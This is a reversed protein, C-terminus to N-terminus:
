AAREEHVEFGTRRAFEVLRQQISKVIKRKDNETLSIPPRAPMRATGKQHALAYPVASGIVLEDREPRLVSGLADPGTLSEYLENTARLIKQGSFEREKFVKYALSLPTWKGSAGKSGESEFQEVEIEYFTRIVGPWFNRFDKIEETIRNFARDLQIDGAIEATFRLM